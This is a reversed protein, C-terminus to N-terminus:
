NPSGFVMIEELGADVGQARDMQFMVWRVTKAPFTIRRPRGGSPLLQVPIVTGDDFTLTGSLVRDAPNPLPYLDVQLITAPVDWNLKIWTPATGGEAVWDRSDAVGDAVGPALEADSEEVSSVSVTAFPAINQIAVNDTRRVLSPSVPRRIITAGRHGRFEALYWRFLAPARLEIALLGGILCVLVVTLTVLSRASKTMGYGGGQTSHLEPGNVLVVLKSIFSPGATEHNLVHKV